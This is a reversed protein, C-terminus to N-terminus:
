NEDQVEGEAPWRWASMTPCGATLWAEVEDVRWRRLRRGILVPPPMLEQAVWNWLARSSIGLRAAVEKDKWLAASM